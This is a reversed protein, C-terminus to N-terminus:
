VREIFQLINNKVLEPQDTSLMHGADKILVTNIHPILKRARIIAKKPDYMTEKEGLLLQIPMQLKAFEDDNFKPRIPIRSRLSLVGMIIQEFEHNGKQYGKVSMGRVLWEATKRNPFMTMPLGHIAWSRTPPGFSPIGPALLCLRNVRNPAILAMNTALFGGYSLGVIDAQSVNLKDLVNIMWTGYENRNKIMRTPISKGIDDIQDIAYTCHKQSLDKIISLWMTATAWQGHLLIMPKANKPGTKIIHTTGFSTNVDIQEFQLPWQHITKEYISICNAKAKESKYISIENDM